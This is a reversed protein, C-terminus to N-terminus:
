CAATCVPIMHHAHASPLTMDDGGASLVISGWFMLMSAVSVTSFGLDCDAATSLRTLLVASAYDEWRFENFYVGTAVIGLILLM